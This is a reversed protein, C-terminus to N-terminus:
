RAPRGHGSVVRGDHRFEEAPDSKLVGSLPHDGHYIIVDGKKIVTKFKTSDSFNEFLKIRM